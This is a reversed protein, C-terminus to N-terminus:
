GHRLADEEATGGPENPAVEQRGQLPFAVLDATQRTRQGRRLAAPWGLGPHRAVQTIRGGQRRGQRAAVNRVVQDMGHAGVLRAPRILFAAPGPVEGLGGMRSADLADDVQAAHGGLALGRLVQLGAEVRPLDQAGSRNRAQLQPGAHDDAGAAGGPGDHPVQRRAERGHHEGGPEGVAALGHRHFLDHRGQHRAQAHVHSPAGPPVNRAGLGQGARLDEQPHRADQAALGDQQLDGQDRGLEGGM